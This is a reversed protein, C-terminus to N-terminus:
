GFLDKRATECLKVVAPHRLKRLSSTRHAASAAACRVDDSCEQLVDLALPEAPRLEV